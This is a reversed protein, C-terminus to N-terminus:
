DTQLKRSELDALLQKWRPDGHLTDFDHTHVRNWLEIPNSELLRQLWEFAPDIDGRWAYIEAIEDPYEQGYQEIYDALVADSREREGMVHYARAMYNLQLVGSMERIPQDPLQQALELTDEGRGQRLRVDALQAIGTLNDPDIDLIRQAYKEAENLNGRRILEDSLRALNVVYLPDAAVARRLYDLVLDPDDYAEAFQPMIGLTFSDDANIKLARQIEAWAQETHGRWKLYLAYRARAEANSPDLEMAKLL